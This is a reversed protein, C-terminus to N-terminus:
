ERRFREEEYPGAARNGALFKLAVERGLELDVARYVVGMGGRGLLGTIRFHSVRAGLLPDTGRSEPLNEPLKRSVATVGTDSSAPLAAGCASCRANFEDNSQECA